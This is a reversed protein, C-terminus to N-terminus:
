DDPNTNRCPIRIRFVSGGGTEPRYDVSGGHAEAVAKVSALGLGLGETNRGRDAQAFPEFLLPVFEVDVGRGSDAIEGFLIDCSTELGAAPEVGARFRVSEGKATHRVANAYLNEWARYLADSDGDVIMGEMLNIESDYDRRSFGADKRFSADLRRMLDGANVTGAPRKWGGTESRAFDILEGIRNELLGAKEELVSLYRVFDEENDAMGDGLAEIYGKISTLPTRLDHSVAMLFRAKRDRANKLEVRTSELSWALDFLDDKRSVVIPEDLKGSSLMVAVEQLRKVSKRLKVDILAPILLIGTLFILPFLWRRQSIFGAVGHRPSLWGVKYPVENVTIPTISLDIKWETDFEAFIDPLYAISGPNLRSQETSLGDQILYPYDAPVLGDETLTPFKLYGDQTMIFTVTRERLEGYRIWDEEIIAALEPKLWGPADLDSYPGLTSSGLYYTIFGVLGVILAPILILSLYALQLKRALRM